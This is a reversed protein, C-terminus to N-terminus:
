ILNIDGMGERIVEINSNIAKIVTSGESAGYGGDIMIDVDHQYHASIDEPDVFYPQIVDEKNLSTSIIPVNLHDLLTQIIEHDPVRIGIETKTGKFYKQVTKNSSLIFTFPGPLCRKMTKFTRSDIPLTYDSVMSLDKCMISLNTQKEKKGTIKIIRELASKNGVVCGLAYITDTPFIIIDGKIARKAIQSIDRVNPNSSHLRVVDIM